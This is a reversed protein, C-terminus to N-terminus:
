LQKRSMVGIFTNFLWKFFEITEDYLLTAGFIVSQKHHNVGFFPTFPQGLESSWCTTDFYIVDGFCEYDYMSRADTWFINM